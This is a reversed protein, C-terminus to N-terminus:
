TVSARSAASAQPWKRIQAPDMNLEAITRSLTNRHMGLEKAAKCQNGRHAALV